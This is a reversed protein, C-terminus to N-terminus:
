LITLVTWFWYSLKMYYSFNEFGSCSYCCCNSLLQSRWATDLSIGGSEVVLCRQLFRLSSVGRGIRVVRKKNASFACGVRFKRDTRKLAPSTSTFGPGTHRSHVLVVLHLMVGMVQELQLWSTHLLCWM